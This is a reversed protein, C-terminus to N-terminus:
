KLFQRDGNKKKSWNDKTFNQDPSVIVLDYTYEDIIGKNELKDWHTYVGREIIQITVNQDQEKMMYYDSSNFKVVVAKKIPETMFIITKETSDTYNIKSFKVPIINPENKYVNNTGILGVLFIAVFIFGIKEGITPSQHSGEFVIVGYIIIILLAFLGSYDWMEYASFGM